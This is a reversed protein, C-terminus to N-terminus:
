VAKKFGTFGCILAMGLGMWVLQYGGDIGMLAVPKLAYIFQLWITAVAFFLSVWLGTKLGDMYGTITMKQRVWDLGISVFLLQVVGLGMRWEQGVYDAEKLGMLEGWPKEFFFGYWLFGIIEGVLTAAIVGWWNIKKFDTM